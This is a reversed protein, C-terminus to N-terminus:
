RLAGASFFLTGEIKFGELPHEKCKPCKLAGRDGHNVNKQKKFPGTAKRITM